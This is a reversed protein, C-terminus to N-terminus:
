IMVVYLSMSTFDLSTKLRFTLYHLPVLGKVKQRDEGRSGLLYM